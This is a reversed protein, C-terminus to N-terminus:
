AGQSGLQRCPSTLPGGGRSGGQSCGTRDEEEEPGEGEVGLCLSLGARDVTWRDKQGGWVRQRTWRM